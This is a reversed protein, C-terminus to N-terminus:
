MKTKWLYIEEENWDYYFCEKELGWMKQCRYHLPDPMQTKGEGIEKETQWSQISPIGYILCTKRQSKERCSCLSHLGFLQISKCLCSELFYYYTSWSVCVSSSPPNSPRSLFFIVWRMEFNEGSEREREIYIYIYLKKGRKKRKRRM